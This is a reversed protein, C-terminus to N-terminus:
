PLVCRRIDPSCVSGSDCTGCNLTGGCGDPYSGCSAQWHLDCTWRICTPLGGAELRCVSVGEQGDAEDVKGDCDDDKGNCVEAGTPTCTPSQGLLLQRLEAPVAAVSVHAEAPRASVSLVMVALRSMRTTWRLM